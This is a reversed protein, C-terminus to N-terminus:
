NNFSYDLSAWYAADGVVGPADCLKVVLGHLREISCMWYVVKYFMKFM